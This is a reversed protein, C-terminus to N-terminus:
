IFIGQNNPLKTINIKRDMSNAKQKIVKFMRNTVSDYIRSSTLKM